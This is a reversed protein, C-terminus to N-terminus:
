YLYRDFILDIYLLTWSCYSRGIILDFSLLHLPLSIIIYILFLILIFPYYLLRLYLLHLIHLSIYLSRLIIIHYPYIQLTFLILLFM